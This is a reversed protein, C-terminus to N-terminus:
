KSPLSHSRLQNLLLNINFGQNLISKPVIYFYRPKSYIIVVNDDHRWNYIKIWPLHTCGRASSIIVRDPQMEIHYPERIARHRRYYRQAIWPSFLSKAAIVMALVFFLYILPTLPLSFLLVAALVAVVTIGAIVKSRLTPRLSLVYARVYDYEGIQYSTKM